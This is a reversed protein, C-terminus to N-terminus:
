KQNEVSINMKYDILKIAKAYKPQNDIDIENLSRLKSRAKKYWREAQFYDKEFNEETGNFYKDGLQEYLTAMGLLAEFDEENLYYAEEFAIDADNYNNLQMNLVGLNYYLDAKRFKDQENDIASKFTDISKEKQDDEYYLMALQRIADSNTPDIEVAKEIYSIASEKEGTLALIQGLSYNPQFANPSASLAKEASKIAMENDGSEYYSNALILYTENSQPDIEISENFLTIAEDLIVKDNSEKFDNYRRVANNYSETWFMNRYNKTVENIPRGNQAKAAPNSSLARDFIENMKTWERKKAYVYYGIDVMVAANDPELELAKFLYEEAKEWDKDQIAVKATSYEVTSGCGVIILLSLVLGFLNKNNNFM